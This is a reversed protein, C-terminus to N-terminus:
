ETQGNRQKYIQEFQEWMEAEVEKRITAEVEKRVLEYFEGVLENRLEEELGNRIEERRADTSRRVQAEIRACVELMWDQQPEPMALAKAQQRLSQVTQTRVPDGALYDFAGTIFSVLVDVFDGEDVDSGCGPCSTIQENQLPIKQHDLQTTRRTPKQFDTGGLRATKSRRKGGKSRRNRNKNTPDDELDFNMQSSFFDGVDASDKAREVM